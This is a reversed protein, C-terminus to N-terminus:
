LWSSLYTPLNETLDQKRGSQADEQELELTWLIIILPESNRSKYYVLV